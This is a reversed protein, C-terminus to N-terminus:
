HYFKKYVPLSLWPLGRFSGCCIQREPSIAAADRENQTEHESASASTQIQLLIMSSDSLRVLRYPVLLETKTWGEDEALDVIANSDAEAGAVKMNGDKDYFMLTPIKYSGAVHEQGPYRIFCSLLSLNLPLLISRTVGHIKPIENPELIAYSVGSFTTGVDFALVLSRTNGSYPKRTDSTVTM